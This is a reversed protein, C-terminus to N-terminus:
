FFISVLQENHKTKVDWIHIVGSQDGIYLQVQNPHLTTCLIPSSIQFIRAVVLSRARLFFSLATLMYNIGYSNRSFLSLIYKTIRTVRCMM